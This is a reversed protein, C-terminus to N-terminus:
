QIVVARLIGGWYPLDWSLTREIECRPLKRLANSSISEHDGDSDVLKDLGAEYPNTNIDMDNGHLLLGAELRLIDRAGLGCTMAGLDTMLKWIRGASKHHVVLEFGDEGTYGTRALLTDVDDIKTEIISFPKILTSEVPM